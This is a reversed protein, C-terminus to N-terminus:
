LWHLNTLQGIAEPIPGTLQNDGLVRPPLTTVTIDRTIQIPDVYLHRLPTLRGIEEPIPGTVNM